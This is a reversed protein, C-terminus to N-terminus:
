RLWALISVDTCFSRHMWSMPLFSRLAITFSGPLDAACFGFKRDTTDGMSSRRFFLRIAIFFTAQMRNEPTSTTTAQSSMELSPKRNVLWLSYGSPVRTSAETGYVLDLLLMNQM